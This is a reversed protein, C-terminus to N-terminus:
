TSSVQAFAGFTKRKSLNQINETFLLISKIKQLREQYVSIAADNTTSLSFNGSYENWGLSFPKQCLQPYV